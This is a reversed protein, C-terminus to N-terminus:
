DIKNHVSTVASVIVSTVKSWVTSFRMTEFCDFGLARAKHEKRICNIKQTAEKVESAKQLSGDIGLVLLTDNNSLAKIMRVADEIVLPNETLALYELVLNSSLFEALHKASQSNINCDILDLLVVSHLLPALKQICTEDINASHSLDLSQLQKVLPSKLLSVAAETNEPSVRTQLATISGSTEGPECPQIHALMFNIADNLLSNCQVVWKKGSHFICYSLSSLFYGNAVSDPIEVYCFNTLFLNSSCISKCAEVNQAEACSAMLVLLSEKSINDYVFSGYDQASYNMRTCDKTSNNKMLAMAVLNYIGRTTMTLLRGKITMKPIVRNIDTNTFGTLGAYFICLSECQSKTFMKKLEDEQQKPDFHQSLYHVALFQQITHHFFQYTNPQGTRLDHEKHLLGFWHYDPSVKDSQSCLKCMEAYTTKGKLLSTYALKSLLLVPSDDPLNELSQLPKELHRNFILLLMTNYVHAISEPIKRNGKRYIHVLFSLFLPMLMLAKFHIHKSTEELFSKGQDEPFCHKLCGKVQPEKLNLIEIVKTFRYQQRLKFAESLRATVVVTSKPLKTLLIEAFLSDRQQHDDLENWGDLIILIEKGATHVHDIEKAIDEGLTEIHLGFLEKMSKVKVVNPDNLRLLVVLHFKPLDGNAWLQCIKLAMTTKGCGAVGQILFCQGACESSFLDSESIKNYDVVSESNFFIKSPGFRLKAIAKESEDSEILALNFSVNEPSLNCDATFWDGNSIWSGRKYHDILFEHYKNLAPETTSSYVNVNCPLVMQLSNVVSNIRHLLKTNNPDKRLCSMFHLQFYNNYTDLLIKTFYAERNMGKEEASSTSLAQVEEDNSTAKMSSLLHDINVLLQPIENKCQHIAYYVKLSESFKHYCPITKLICCLVKFREKDHVTKLLTMMLKRCFYIQSYQVYLVNISMCLWMRIAISGVCMCLVFNQLMIEHSTYAAHQKQVHMNNYLWKVCTFNLIAINNM